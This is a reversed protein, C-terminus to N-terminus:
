RHLPKTNGLYSVQNLPQSDCSVVAGTQSCTLVSGSFRYDSPFFLSTEHEPNHRVQIPPQWSGIVNLTLYARVSWVPTLPFTQLPLPSQRGDKSLCKLYGRKEDCHRTTISSLNGGGWREDEKLTTVEPSHWKIRNTRMATFSPHVFTKDTMRFSVVTRKPFLVLKFDFM